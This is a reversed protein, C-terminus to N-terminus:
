GEKDLTKQIQRLQREVLFAFLLLILAISGYAGVIYAYNPAISVREARLSGDAQRVGQALITKLERLTDMDPGAYIVPTLAGQEELIFSADNASMKLSGAQVRGLVRAQQGDVLRSFELPSYSSVESQYRQWALASVLGLVLFIFLWRRIM